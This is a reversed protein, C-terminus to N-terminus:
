NHPSRKGTAIVEYEQLVSACAAGFIENGIANFHGDYKWFLDGYDIGRNEILQEMHKSVDIIDLDALVEPSAKETLVQFSGTKSDKTPVPIILLRFGHQKSLYKLEVLYKDINHPHVQSIPVQKSVMSPSVYNRSLLPGAGLLQEALWNALRFVYINDFMWRGTSGPKHTDVYRELEEKQHQNEFVVVHGQYCERFRMSRQLDQIDNEYFALIVIDPEYTSLNNQLILLHVDTGTGDLGLNFVETSIEDDLQRLERGLVQTWTHAIPVHLSSTFSDGIAVIKRKYSLKGLTHEIDHFGKSNIKVINDMEINRSIRGTINPKYKYGTQPDEAYICPFIERSVFPALESRLLRLSAELVVLLSILLLIINLVHKVYIGEASIICM